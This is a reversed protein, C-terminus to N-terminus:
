YAAHRAPSPRFGGGVIKKAKDATVKKVTKSKKATQKKKAAPKKAKM